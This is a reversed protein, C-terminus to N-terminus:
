KRWYVFDVKRCDSPKLVAHAAKSVSVGHATFFCFHGPTLSSLYYVITLEPLAESEGIDDTPRIEVTCAYSGVIRESKWRYQFRTDQFDQGKLSHPFWVAGSGKRELPIYKWASLGALDALSDASAALALACALEILGM